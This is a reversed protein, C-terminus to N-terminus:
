IWVATINVKISENIIVYTNEIILEMSPIYILSSSVRRDKLSPLVIEFLEVAMV